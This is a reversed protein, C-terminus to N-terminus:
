AGSTLCSHNSVLIGGGMTSAVNQSFISSVATLTTDYYLFVGAGEPATNAHLYSSELQCQGNSGHLGGGNLSASNGSITSCCSFLPWVSIDHDRM